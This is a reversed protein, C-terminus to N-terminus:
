ADDPRVTAPHRLPTLRRRRPTVGAAIRTMSATAIGPTRGAIPGILVQTLLGVISAITLDIASSTKVTIWWIIAFQVASSSLLSFAQGTYIRFFQKQWAGRM